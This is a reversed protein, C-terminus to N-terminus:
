NASCDQRQQFDQMKKRLGRCQSTLAKSHLFSIAPRSLVPVSYQLQVSNSTEAATLSWSVTYYPMQNCVHRIFFQRWKLIRKHRSRPPLQNRRFTLICPTTVRFVAEIQLQFSVATKAEAQLIELALSCIKTFNPLSTQIWIYQRDVFYRAYVKSSFQEQKQTYKTCLYM